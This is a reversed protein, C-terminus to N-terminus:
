ANALLYDPNLKTLPEAVFLGNERILEGDFYIAGGGHEERQIQVLDWHVKSRNGNDAIEYAQGPTFHFSGAIKEDFLIDRMPEKIHPNFGLAFEGIYRAGLDSDLIEKLRGPNSGDAHVIRGKKFSLRVRDFSVGQYVTPANYTIEGEVSDKIPATFVEGDPINHKGGCAVANMGRISFRLDTGPGKIEVQEASEMREKLAEMGPIMRAYDQTCVRFFFDEFGQTSSMAQQAMSPTPWRLVVWKTKNVRYDLVPKTAQMVHNIKEPEVDSLEFINDAGRVAIYADMKRMRELEWEAQAEFQGADPARVLERSVRAREVQVHPVAGRARAARVLAIVMAEPIDFAHILVREGKQLDTSFDTLVTALKAYNPDM